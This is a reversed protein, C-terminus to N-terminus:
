VEIIWNKGAAYSTTLKYPTLNASMIKILPDNYTQCKSVLPPAICIAKFNSVYNPRISIGMSYIISIIFCILVPKSIDNSDDPSCFSSLNTMGTQPTDDIQFLVSMWSRGILDFCSCHFSAILLRLPKNAGEHWVFTPLFDVIEGPLM